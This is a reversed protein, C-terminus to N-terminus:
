SFLAHTRIIRVRTTYVHYTTEDNVETDPLDAALRFRDM